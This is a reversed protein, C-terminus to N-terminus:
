SRKCDIELVFQERFDNCWGPDLGTIRHLKDLEAGAFGTLLPLARNASCSKDISTHLRVVRM